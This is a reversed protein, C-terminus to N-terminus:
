GFGSNRYPRNVSFGDGVAVSGLGIVHLVLDSLSAGQLLGLIRDYSFM